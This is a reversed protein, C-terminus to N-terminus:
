LLPHSGPPHHRPSPCDRVADDLRSKIREWPAPGLTLTAAIHHQEIETQSIYFQRAQSYHDAFTESRIRLKPGAAAPYTQVGREPSERPGGGQGNWSNPEYNARGKPNMM